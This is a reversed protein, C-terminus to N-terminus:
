GGTPTAQHPNDGIYKRHMDTLMPMLPETERIHDSLTTRETDLGNEIRAVADKISGGHNPTTEHHITAVHEKLTVNTEELSAMRDVIGTGPGDGVLANVLTVLKSVFPWSKLASRGFLWLIFLIFGVTLLRDTAILNTIWEPM